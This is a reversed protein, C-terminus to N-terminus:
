WNAYDTGDMARGPAGSKVDFVEKDKSDKPPILVWTDASQTIPDVPVARIYRETVLENLSTPYRAKDRYFQDIATRLGTINQKLVTDRAQDVREIYRPAVLATLVALVVLVVLLEILTFGRTGQKSRWWAILKVETVM